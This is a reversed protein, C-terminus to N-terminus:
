AKGILSYFVCYIKASLNYVDRYLITYRHKKDTMDENEIKKNEVIQNIDADM